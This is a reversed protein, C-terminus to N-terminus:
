PVAFLFMMVSGHLTFLQNYTTASVLDNDPLALQLRMLLALMGAFLFFSIAAGTYWRGVNTNNVSSWYRWGPPTEWAAHLRATQAPDAGPSDIAPDLRESMAPWGPVDGHRAARGAAARRVAADASRAQARARERD